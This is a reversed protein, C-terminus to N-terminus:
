NPVALPGGTYGVQIDMPSGLAKNLQTVRAKRQDDITITLSGGVDTRGGGPMRATAAPARADWNLPGRDPADWSGEPQVDAGGGMWRPALERARRLRAIIQDWRSVVTVLIAAISTLVILAAGLPNAAMAATMLWIAKTFLAFQLLAKLAIFSVLIALVNGWGGMADALDDVFTVTGSVLKSFSEFRELIKPLGKELKEMWETLKSAILDKNAVVWRTLRDLVGKLAPLIQQLPEALGNFLGTKSDELTDNFDSFARVADESLVAGVRHAELGLKALGQRGTTLFTLMAKGGRGLLAQSAQGLTAMNHTTKPMQAGFESLRKLIEVPSERRLQAMSVGMANFWTLAEKNGNSAEGITRNLYDLATNLTEASSGTRRAAFQLEQLETTSIRLNEAFDGLQDVRDSMRALGYFAGAFAAGMRLAASAVMGVTQRLADFRARVMIAPLALKHVAQKIKDVTKTARDFAEIVFALRLGGKSSM